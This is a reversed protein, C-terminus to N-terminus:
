GEVADIVSERYSREAENLAAQFILADSRSDILEDLEPDEKGDLTLLRYVVDPPEGPDFQSPEYGFTLELVHVLCKRHYVQMPFKFM